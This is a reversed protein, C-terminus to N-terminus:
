SKPIFQESKSLKGLLSYCKEIIIDNSLTNNPEPLENERAPEMTWIGDVWNVARYIADSGKLDGLSSYIIRGENLYMELSQEHEKSKVILRATKRGPVIAKLVDLLNMNSLKGTTGSRDINRELKSSDSLERMLKKIEAVLIDLNANLAIIDAVANGFDEVMPSVYCEKIMLFTPPASDERHSATIKEVISKIKRPGSTLILIIVDPESRKCLAAFTDISSESMIRFSENALRLELPHIPGTRDTFIMVQGLGGGAATSLIEEQVMAIFAEVIESLFLRGTLERLKQKVIEFKDLSLKQEPPISSCFLDVITIINSGFVELPLRKNYKGKLDKYMYQLIAVIVASYNVSNLLKVTRAVQKRVDTDDAENYYFKALDHLYGATSIKQKEQEPLDLRTCLKAVYRGVRGGRNVSLKNQSAIISTLLDLNSLFLRTDNEADKQNILLSSASEYYRVVTSPSIKRLRDILDICNGPVTDKILVTDFIREGINGM